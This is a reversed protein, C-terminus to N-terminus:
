GGRDEGPPLWALSRHTTRELPLSLALFLEEIQERERGGIRTALSVPLQRCFALAQAANIKRVAATTRAADGVRQAPCHALQLDYEAFFGTSIGEVVPVMSTREGSAFHGLDLFADQAHYHTLAKAFDELSSLPKQEKQVTLVDVFTAAELYHALAHDVAFAPMERGLADTVQEDQEDADCSLYFSAELLAVDESAYVWSYRRYVDDDDLCAALAEVAQQLSLLRPM